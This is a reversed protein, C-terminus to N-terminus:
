STPGGDLAPQVRHRELRHAWSVYGPDPALLSRADAPTSRSARVPTASTSAAHRDAFESRSSRAASILALVRSLLPFGISLLSLIGLFSRRAPNLGAPAGGRLQRGRGPRGRRHPREAPTSSRQRVHLGFEVTVKGANGFTTDPSGDPNLRAVGFGNGQVSGVVVIRGDADLAVGGILDDWPGIDIMARGAGGFGQDISGNTNLRTVTMFDDGVPRGAVVIKGDPQVLVDVLSGAGLGVRGDGSFDPDLAGNARLRAVVATSRDSTFTPRSLGAILIRGNPQRAMANAFDDGGFDATAIGGTGFSKDLSGNAHLRAVQMNGTEPGSHGGVLLKGNPLVIVSTM